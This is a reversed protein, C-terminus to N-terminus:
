KGFKKPKYKPAFAGKTHISENFDANSMGIPHRARDAAHLYKLVDARNKGRSEALIMDQIIELPDWWDIRSTALALGQIFPVIDSLNRKELAKIYIDRTQSKKDGLKMIEDNIVEQKRPMPKEYNRGSITVNLATNTNSVPVDPTKNVKTDEKTKKSM